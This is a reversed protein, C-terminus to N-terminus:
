LNEKKMSGLTLIFPSQGKKTNAALQRPTMSEKLLNLNDM